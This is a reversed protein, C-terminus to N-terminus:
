LNLALKLYMINQRLPLHNKRNDQRDEEMNSSLTVVVVEESCLENM